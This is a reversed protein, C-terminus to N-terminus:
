EEEKRVALSLPKVPAQGRLSNGHMVCGNAEITALTEMEPIPRVASLLVDLAQAASLMPTKETM